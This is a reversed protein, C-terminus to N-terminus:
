KRATFTAALFLLYYFITFTVDTHLIYFQDASFHRLWSNGGENTLEFKYKLRLGKKSDCNSVAIFWWRERMSEFETRSECITWKVSKTLSTLSSNNSSSSSSIIENSNQQQQQPSNSDHKEIKTVSHCKNVTKEPGVSTLNIFQNRQRSM